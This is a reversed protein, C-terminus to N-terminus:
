GNRLYHKLDDRIDQLVDVARRLDTKMASTATDVRHLREHDVASFGNKGNKKSALYKVSEVLGLAIAVVGGMIGYEM